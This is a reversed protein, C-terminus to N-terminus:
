KRFNASNTKKQFTLYFNIKNTQKNKQKKSDHSIVMRNEGIQVRRKIM